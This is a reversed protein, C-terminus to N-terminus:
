PLTNQSVLDALRSFPPDQETDILRLVLATILTRSATNYFEERSLGTNEVWARAFDRADKSTKIHALPNYGSSWAPNTPSFLLVDHYLSVTGGCFRYLEDKVDNILLSRHGREALLAPIFFGSSKRKGTPAVILVHSEQQRETLQIPLSGRYGVLLLSEPAHDSQGFTRCHTVKQGTLNAQRLESLTAWHASGHTTSTRSPRLVLLSATLLFLPVLLQINLAQLPVAPQPHLLHHVQMYLYWVLGAVLVLSAMIFVLWTLIPHDYKWQLTRTKLAQVFTLIDIRKLMPLQPHKMFKKKEKSHCTM